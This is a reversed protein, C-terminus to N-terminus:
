FGRTCTRARPGSARTLLFESGLHRTMARGGTKMVSSRKIEAFLAFIDGHLVGCALVRKSVGGRVGM